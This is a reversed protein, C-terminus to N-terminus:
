HPAGRKRPDVGAHRAVEESQCHYAVLVLMHGLAASPRGAAHLTLAEFIALSESYPLKNRARAFVALSHQIRDVNRLTSGYQLYCKRLIDGHLGNGSHMSTIASPQKKRAPPTTHAALGAYLASAEEPHEELIALLARVTPEM